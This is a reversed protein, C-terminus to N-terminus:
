QKKETLHEENKQLIDIVQYSGDRLSQVSAVLDQASKKDLQKLQHIANEYQPFLHIKSTIVARATHYETLTTLFGEIADEIGNITGLVEEQVQFVFTESETVAEVNLKIWM